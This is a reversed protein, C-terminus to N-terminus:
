KNLITKETNIMQPLGIAGLKSLLIKVELYSSKTKKETTATKIKAKRKEKEKKKKKKKKAIKVNKFNSGAGRTCPIIQCIFKNSEDSSEPWNLTM